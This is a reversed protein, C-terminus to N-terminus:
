RSGSQSARAVPRRWGLFRGRLTLVVAVVILASAVFTDTTLREDLVLWGLAVAVIPNVYAYTSVKAPTSVRLLWVYASFAVLSGFAALYLLAAISQPSFSSPDLTSWEGKVGGAVLLLAGGGLMEMATALLPSGPLGADRSYVSGAAWSLSAFLLLGAGFPDVGRGLGPDILVWVGAFGLLFGLLRNRTLHEGAVFLHALLLTTLPMIAMLIGALASDISKQGWTIFWFPLCNGVFALVVYPMWARGVPPFTYGMARIVAVLIVAGIVLRTAVLTAPPVQAVGLKIFMFNSGWLAVLAALLGWDKLTRSPM